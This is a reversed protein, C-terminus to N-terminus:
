ALSQDVTEDFQSKVQVVAGSNERQVVFKVHSQVGWKRVRVERHKSKRGM